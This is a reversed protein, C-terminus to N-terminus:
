RERCAATQPVCVMGLEVLTPPHGTNVPVAHGSITQQFQEPIRSGIAQSGTRLTQPAQRAVSHVRIDIDDSAQLM